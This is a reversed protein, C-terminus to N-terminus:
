KKPSAEYWVLAGTFEVVGNTTAGRGGDGVFSPHLFSLFSIVGRSFLPSLTHTTVGWFLVSTKLRQRIDM